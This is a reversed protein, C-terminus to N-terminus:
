TCSCGIVVTFNAWTQGAPLVFSVSNGTASITGAVCAGAATQAQAGLFRRTGPCTGATFCTANTQNITYTVTTTTAACQTSASMCVSAYTTGAPLNTTTTCGPGTTAPPCTGSVAVSPANCPPMSDAPFTVRLLDRRM